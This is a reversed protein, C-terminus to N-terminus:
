RDDIRDSVSPPEARGGELGAAAEDPLALSELARAQQEAADLTAALASAGRRLQLMRSELSFVRSQSRALEAQTRRLAASELLFLWWGAVALAVLAAAIWLRGRARKPREPVAAAPPNPDVAILRPRNSM